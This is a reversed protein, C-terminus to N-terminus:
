RDDYRKPRIYGDIVAAAQEGGTGRTTTRMKQALTAQSVKVGFTALSMSSSAPVCYYNTTQYQERLTLQYSRPMALVYAAARTDAHATTSPGTWTLAAIIAAAAVM